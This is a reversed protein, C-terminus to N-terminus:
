CYCSKGYEVFIEAGERIDGNYAVFRHGHYTTSAGAGPDSQPRIGANDRFPLRSIANMAGTHSNALMGIGPIISQIDRAETFASSYPANWFYNELLWAPEGETYEAGVYLHRLQNSEDVDPAQVVIDPFAINHSDKIVKGAFM